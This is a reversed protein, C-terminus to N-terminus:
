TPSCPGPTTGYRNKGSQFGDEVEGGRGEALVVLRGEDVRRFGGM